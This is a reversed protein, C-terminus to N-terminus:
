LNNVAFELNKICEEKLDKFVCQKDKYTRIPFKIIWNSKIIPSSYSLSRLYKEFKFNNLKDKPLKNIIKIMDEETVSKGFMIYGQFSPEHGECSFETTLGKQNLLYILNKIKDDIIINEM